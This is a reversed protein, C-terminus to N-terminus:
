TIGLANVFQKRYHEVYGDTQPSAFQIKEVREGNVAELLALVLGMQRANHDCAAFLKAQDIKLTTSTNIM